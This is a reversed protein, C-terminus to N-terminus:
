SGGHFYTCHRSSGCGSQVPVSLELLEVEGNDRPLPGMDEAGATKRQEGEVRDQCFAQSQLSSKSM